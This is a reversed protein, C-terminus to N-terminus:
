LLCFIYIITLGWLNPIKGVTFNKYPIFHTTLYYKKVEKKFKTPCNLSKIRNPMSNYLKIGLNTVSKQYQSTNCGLIHYNNKGRTNYDHVQSNTKLNVIHKKIFCLVELIYLSTVTLINFTKFVNRCSEFRKM